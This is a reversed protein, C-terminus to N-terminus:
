RRDLCALLRRARAAKGEHIPDAGLITLGEQLLKRAREPEDDLILQALMIGAYAAGSARGAQRYLRLAEEFGSRARSPASDLLGYAEDYLTQARPGPHAGWNEIRPEPSRNNRWGPDTPYSWARFRELDADPFEGATSDPRSDAESNSLWVELEETAKQTLSFEFTHRVGCVPCMRELTVQDPLTGGHGELARALTERDEALVRFHIPVGMTCEPDARLTLVPVSNYTERGPSAMQGAQEWGALFNPESTM